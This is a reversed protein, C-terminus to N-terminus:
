LNDKIGNKELCLAEDKTIGYIYFQAEELEDDLYENDSRKYVKYVGFLYKGLKNNIPDNLENEGIYYKECAYLRYRIKVDINNQKYLNELAKIIDILKDLDDMKCSEDIYDDPTMIENTTYHDEKNCLNYKPHIDYYVNLFRLDDRNVNYFYFYVTISNNQTNQKEISLQYEGIKYYNSFVMNYNLRVFKYYFFIKKDKNTNKFNDRELNVIQALIKLHEKELNTM